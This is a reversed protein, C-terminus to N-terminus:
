SAFGGAAAKSFSTTSQSARVASQSFTQFAARIEKGTAKPTLVWNPLIGMEAFVGKFFAEDGIGMGAIIHRESRLMDGVVAAVEQATHNYVNNGGDTVDLVIGRAPIGDSEFQQVKAAVAALLHLKREFLPTSGYTAQYNGTDMRPANAVEVFPCLVQGSLYTCHVMIEAAHRAGQLADLLGNYGDRVHQHNSGISGSDDILVGVIVAESAVVDGPPKGLANMISTGINSTGIISASGPSLVGSAGADSILNLATQSM